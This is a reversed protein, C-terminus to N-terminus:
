AQAVHGERMELGVFAARQVLPKGDRRILYATIDSDDSADYWDLLVGGVVATATLSGPTSPPSIDVNEPMAPIQITAVNSAPSSDDDAGIARVTYSYTTSAQVSIL